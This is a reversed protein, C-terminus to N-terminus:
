NERKINVNALPGLRRKTDDAFAWADSWEAFAQRYEQPLLPHRTWTVLYTM